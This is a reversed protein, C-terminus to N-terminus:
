LIVLVTPTTGYDAKAWSVSLGPNTPLDASIYSCGWYYSNFNGNM